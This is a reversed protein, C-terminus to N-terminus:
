KEKKNDKSEEEKRSKLYHIIGLCQHYSYKLKEAEQEYKEIEKDISDQM